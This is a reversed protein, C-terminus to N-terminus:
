EITFEAALLVSPNQFADNTEGVHFEWVIRYHGTELQGHIGDWSIQVTRPDENPKYIYAIAPVALAADKDTRTAVPYWQGDVSIHVRAKLEHGSSLEYDTENLIQVSLSTPTVSGPEVTMSIGAYDNVSGAFPVDSVAAIPVKAPRRPAAIVLVVAFGIILVIICALLPLLIEKKKM